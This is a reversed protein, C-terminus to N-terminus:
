LLKKIEFKRKELDKLDSTIKSMEKIALNLADYMAQPGVKETAFKDCKLEQQIDSGPYYLHGFEHYLLAKKIQSEEKFKEYDYVVLERNFDSPDDKYIEMALFIRTDINNSAVQEETIGIAEIFFDKNEIVEINYKGFKLKQKIVM